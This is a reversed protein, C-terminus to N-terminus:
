STAAQKMRGTRGGPGHILVAERDARAALAAGDNSDCATVGCSMAIRPFGPRSAVNYISNLLLQLHHQAGKGSHLTRWVLRDPGSSDVELIPPSCDVIAKEIAQIDAVRFDAPLPGPVLRDIRLSWLLTDIGEQAGTSSRLLQAELGGRLSRVLPMIRPLRDSLALNVYGIAVMVVASMSLFIVPWISAAHRDSLGPTMAGAGIVRVAMAVVVVVWLGLLLRRGPLQLGGRALHWVGLGAWVVAIMGFLTVAVVPTNRFSESLSAVIWIVGPLVLLFPNPRFGDTARVGQILIALGSLITVNAAVAYLWYPWGFYRAGYLVSGVAVVISGVGTWLLDRSEPVRRWRLVLIIGQVLSWLTIAVSFIALDM